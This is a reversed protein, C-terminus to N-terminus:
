SHWHYERLTMIICQHSFQLCLGSVKTIIESPTDAKGTHLHLGRQCHADVTRLARAMEKWHSDLASALGRAPSDHSHAKTKASLSDRSSPFTARPWGPLSFHPGAPGQIGVGALGSGIGARGEAENARSTQASNQLQELAKRYCVNMGKASLLMAGPLRTPGPGPRWSTYLNAWSLVPDWPLGGPHALESNAWGPRSNNM